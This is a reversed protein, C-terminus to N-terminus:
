THTKVPASELNEKFKSMLRWVADSQEHRTIFDSEHIIAYDMGTKVTRDIYASISDLDALAGHGGDATLIDNLWIGVETGTDRMPQYHPFFFNDIEEITNTKFNGAHSQGDIIGDAALKNSDIYYKAVAGTDLAAPHPPCYGGQLLFTSQPTAARLERIFSDVSEGKLWHWADLDFEVAGVYNASYTFPENSYIGDYNTLFDLYDFDRIDVGHRRKYEEAVLNDYGFFNPSRQPSTYVSHSRGIELMFGDPQYAVLEKFLRMKYDRVEPQHYCPWGQLHYNGCRSQWWLDPRSTLFDDELGPFYDDFFRFYLVIELEFERSLKVAEELPDFKGMLEAVLPAGKHLKNAGIRTAVESYFHAKGCVMPAWSITDFGSQKAKSFLRKMSDLDGNGFLCDDHYDVDLITRM